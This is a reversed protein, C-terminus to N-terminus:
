RPDHDVPRRIVKAHAIGGQNVCDQALEHVRLHYDPDPAMKM